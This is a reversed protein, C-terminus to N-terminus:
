GTHSSERAPVSAGKSQPPCAANEQSRVQSSDPRAPAARRAVSLIITFLHTSHSRTGPEPSRISADLHHRMTLKNECACQATRLHVQQSDRVPHIDLGVHIMM